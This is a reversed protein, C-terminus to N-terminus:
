PRPPTPYQPHRPLSVTVTTGVNETSDISISGQHLDVCDKVIKLGLGTGGIAKVNKGRVFPEFLKAQDAAPIGIGQDDVIITLAEDNMVLSVQVRKGAESYKIANSLLNHMLYRFIREDLPMKPLDPPSDLVLTHQAGLSHQFHAITQAMLSRVNVQKPEFRLANDQMQLILLMDNLLDTLHTVQVRIATVRESRQEENLREAYRELMDLSTTITALPNRFEHSVMSSFLKKLESVERERDLMESLVSEKMQSEALAERTEIAETVDLTCGVLGVIHGDRDRLPVKTALGWMPQRDASLSREIQNIFGEGTQLLHEEDAQYVSWLTSPFFDEDRKGATDDQQQAGLTRLHYTNNFLFRRQRDKVFINFPMADILSRLLHREKELADQTEKRATVDRSVYIHYLVQGDADLQHNLSTELWVYHGNKHRVRYESRVPQRSQTAQAFKDIGAAIDDPHVLDFLSLVGEKVVDDTEYGTITKFAGNKFVVTNNANTIVVMEAINDSIARLVTASDLSSFTAPTPKRGQFLNHWFKM